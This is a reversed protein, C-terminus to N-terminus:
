ESYHYAHMSICQSARIKVRQRHLAASRLRVILALASPTRMYVFPATLQISTFALTVATATRMAAFRVFFNHRSPSSYSFRFSVSLSFRSVTPSALPNQQQRVRPDEEKGLRRGNEGMGRGPQALGQIHVADEQSVVRAPSSARSALCRRHSWNAVISSARPRLACRATETSASHTGTASASRSWERDRRAEGGLSRAHSQKLSTVACWSHSLTLGHVCVGESWIDFVRLDLAYRRFTDDMM